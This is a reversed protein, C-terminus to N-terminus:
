LDDAKLIRGFACNTHAVDLGIHYPIYLNTPKFNHNYM